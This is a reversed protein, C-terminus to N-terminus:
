KTAGGGGMRGAESPEFPSEVPSAVRGCPLRRTIQHQSTLVRTLLFFPPRHLTAFAACPLRALTSVPEALEMGPLLIFRVLERPVRRRVGKREGGPAAEDDRVEYRESGRLRSFENM